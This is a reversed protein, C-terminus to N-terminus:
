IFGKSKPRNGLPVHTQPHCRWVTPRHASQHNPGKIEYLDWFFLPYILIDVFVTKVSRWSTLYRYPSQGDPWPSKSKLWVSDLTQRISKTFASRGHDNLLGSFLERIVQERWYRTPPRHKDQTSVSPGSQPLFVAQFLQLSSVHVNVDYIQMKSRRCYNMSSLNVSSPALHTHARVASSLYLAGSPRAISELCLGEGFVAVRRVARLSSCNLPFFSQCFLLLNLLAEFPGRTNESRHM